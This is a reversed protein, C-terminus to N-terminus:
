IKNAFSSYKKTYRIDGYPITWPKNSFYIFNEFLKSRIGYGGRLIIQGFEIEGKSIIEKKDLLDSGPLAKPFLKTLIKMNTYMFFGEVTPMFIKQELHTTHSNLSIGCLGINKRGYFLNKYKLLWFDNFPGSATSNIFIVDGAYNISKLYNYGENYAGYTLGINDRFIIKEIFYYKKCLSLYFNEREIDKSNFNIVLIVSFSVGAKYKLMNDFLHGLGCDIVMNGINKKIYIPYLAFDNVILKAKREDQKYFFRFYIMDKKNLLYKLFIFIKCDLAAIIFKVFRYTFVSVRGFIINKKISIKLEPLKKMYRLHQKQDM